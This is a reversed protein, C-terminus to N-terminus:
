ADRGETPKCDPCRHRAMEYALWAEEESDTHYLLPRDQVYGAGGCRACSKEADQRPAVREVNEHEM